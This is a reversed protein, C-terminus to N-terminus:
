GQQGLLKEIYGVIDDVKTQSKVFFEKAGLAKVKAVDSEQALSSHVIIPVTNGRSRLEELVEFGSTSMALDSLILDFREGSLRDLADKGNLVHTVAFGAKTLRIILARAMLEDDDAILIKKTNSQEM